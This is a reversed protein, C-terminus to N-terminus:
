RVFAAQVNWRDGNKRTTRRTERVWNPKAPDVDIAAAPNAARGAGTVRPVAAAMRALGGQRWRCAAASGRDARKLSREQQSIMIM